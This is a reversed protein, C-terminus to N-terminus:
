GKSLAAIAARMAAFHEPLPPRRAGLPLSMDYALVATILQDTSPESATVTPSPAAEPEPAGKLLFAPIQADENM